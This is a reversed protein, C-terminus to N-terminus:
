RCINGAWVPYPRPFPFVPQQADEDLENKVEKFINNAADEATDLQKLVNQNGELGPQNKLDEIQDALAAAMNQVRNLQQESPNSGLKKIERQLEADRQDIERFGKNVQSDNGTYSREAANLSKRLDTAPKSAIPDMEQLKKDVERNISNASKEAQDLQKLVKDNGELGPQNKLDEIKDALAAAMEKVENLQQKSPNSGLKKIKSQLEANQKDLDNFAKKVNCDCGTYSKKAQNLSKNLEDANKSAIPPQMESLKDKAERYIGNAANEAKDLQNLIQSNGELGPQNKLDEIKDALAAAMNQVKELQQKSPNEGLKKIERQLTADLKDLEKFGKNVQSDNGEYNREASNLSKRLDVEPKTAGGNQCNNCSQGIKNAQKNLVNSMQQQNKGGGFLLKLIDMPGMPVPISVKQNSGFDISVTPPTFNKFISGISNAFSM